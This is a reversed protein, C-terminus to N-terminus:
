HQFRETQAVHRPLRANRPPRWHCRLSRYASLFPSSPYSKLMGIDRRTEQIGSDRSQDQGLTMSNNGPLPESERHIHHEPRTEGRFNDSPNFTESVGSQHPFYNSDGSMIIRPKYSQFTNPLHNHHLYSHHKPHSHSLLIAVNVRNIYLRNRCLPESSITYNPILDDLLSTVVGLFRPKAKSAAPFADDSGRLQWAIRPISSGVYRPTSLEVM